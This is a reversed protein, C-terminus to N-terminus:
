RSVQYRNADFPELPRSVELAVRKLERVWQLSSSDIQGNLESWKVHGSHSGPNQLGYFAKSGAEIVPSKNVRLFHRGQILPYVM